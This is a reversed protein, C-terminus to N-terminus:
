KEKNPSIDKNSMNSDNHNNNEYTITKSAHKADFVYDMIENKNMHKDSKIINQLRKLMNTKKFNLENEMKRREEELLYRDKKMDDIRQMRANIEEMKQSREFDKVREKRLVRNKRDERSM